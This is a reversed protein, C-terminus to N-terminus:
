PDPAVLLLAAIWVGAAVQLALDFPAAEGGVIASLASSGICAAALALAAPHEAPARSALGRACAIAAAAGLVLAKPLAFTSDIGPWFALATAVMALPALLEIRPPARSTM